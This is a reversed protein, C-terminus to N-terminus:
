SGARSHKGGRCGAADDLLHRRLDRVQRQLQRGAPTGPLVHQDAACSVLRQGAARQLQSRAGPRLVRHRGGSREFDTQPDDVRTTAAGRMSNESAIQAEYSLGAGPAKWRALVTTSTPSSVDPDPPAYPMASGATTLSVVPSPPGPSGTLTDIAAVRVYYTTKPSLETLIVMSEAVQRREPNALQPNRAVDVVYGASAIVPQWSVLAVTSRPSTVIRSPASEAPSDPAPSATSTTNAVLFLALVLTVTAAVYTIARPQFGTRRSIM